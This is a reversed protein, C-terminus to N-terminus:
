QPSGMQDNHSRGTVPRSAAPPTPARGPRRRRVAAAAVLLIFSLNTKLYRRGLRIPEQQARYLWELGHRQYWLPARKTVGALIDFSGGVGHAVRVRTFEGWSSLFIEKKPSTMGLFLLEAGSDRIEAAVEKEDASTFYGNRAGAIKLGPFRRSIEALMRKLADSRAGLFYVRYGRAAAVELLEFFLDIGAVREPLPSGLARSAWVVSQGDALIMQCTAVADRLGPDRRMTVVKAANVVGIQLYRGDAVADTCRRVAQDVTIADFQLGFLHVTPDAPVAEAPVAEATM